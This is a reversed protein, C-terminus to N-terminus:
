RRVKMCISLRKQLKVAFCRQLTRGFLQRLHPSTKFHKFLYGFLFVYLPEMCSLREKCAKKFHFDESSGNLEFHVCSSSQINLTYIVMKEFWNPIMPSRSVKILGSLNYAAMEIDNLNKVDDVPWIHASVSSPRCVPMDGSTVHVSIFTHMTTLHMNMYVFGLGQYSNKWLYICEGRIFFLLQIHSFVHWHKSM